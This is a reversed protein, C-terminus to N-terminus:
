ASAGLQKDTEVPATVRINRVQAITYLALFGFLMVSALVLMHMSLGILDLLTGTLVLAFQFIARNWMGQFAFYRGRIAEPVIIQPIAGNTPLWMGLILGFLAFGSIVFWRSAAFHMFFLALAVGSLLLVNRRLLDGGSFLRKTLTGGILISIGEVTYLIGKLAADQQMESFKLILLNFGGLFLFVLTGSVMLLILAPITRLLSFVEFFSLKNGNGQKVDRKKEHFVLLYRIGFMIAFLLVALLYMEYLPLLTLLIGAIGTAAIRTVTVVNTFVANARVLEQKPVLLPIVSNLTPLYFSNAANLVLLGFVMLPLSHFYMAAVQLGASMLQVLSSWMIVTKKAYRDILVGAKPSVLIGLIPGTVLVLSKFFDSQVTEQLFQLNALVGVWMASNSLTEGTM